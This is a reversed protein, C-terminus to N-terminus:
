TSIGSPMQKSDSKGKRNELKASKGAVRILEEKKRDKLSIFMRRTM